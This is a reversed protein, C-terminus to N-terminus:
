NLTKRLWNGGMEWISETNQSGIYKGLKGTNAVSRNTKANTSNANANILAAQGEQEKLKIDANTLRTNNIMGVVDLLNGSGVNGSNGTSGGGAIAGASSAGTTLAPNLGAKQLDQMEWQHANQAFEKQQAYSMNALTKSQSFAANSSDTAGTIQNLAKGISGFM